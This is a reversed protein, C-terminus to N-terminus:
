FLYVAVVQVLHWAQDPYIYWWAQKTTKWQDMLAHGILLFAAKWLAFMGLYQLAVCICTTWIMCHALMIYWKTGKNKAQWDSQLAFDGIYHAFILWIINM